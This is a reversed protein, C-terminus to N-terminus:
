VRARICMGYVHLELHRWACVGARWKLGKVGVFIRGACLFRRCVCIKLRGRRGGGCIACVGGRVHVRV